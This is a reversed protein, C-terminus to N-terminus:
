KFFLIFRNKDYFDKVQAEDVKVDKLYGDIDVYAVAVERQQELLGLFKAASSRAVINSAAVPEQVAGSVLDSRLKQEFFLPNMNQSALWMRYRDASFKGDEQFMPVSMIFQQLQSDSVRFKEDRAKNALLKQNVLNDLIAFRVEPNDFMRPDFNRGLQRRMQETQERLADAYDNQTIKEGGVTAVADVQAGGRFYYDVGFFAFPVMILFLIVQAIRKHKAVLDFM